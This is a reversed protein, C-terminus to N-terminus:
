CSADDKEAELKNLLDAVAQAQERKFKVGQRAAIPHVHWNECAPDGCPCREITYRQRPMVRERDTMPVADEKAEMM